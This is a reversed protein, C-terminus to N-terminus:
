LTTNHQTITSVLQFQEDLDKKYSMKEQERKKEREIMDEELQLMCTYTLM